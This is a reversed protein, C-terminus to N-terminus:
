HCLTFSKAGRAPSMRLSLGDLEITLKKGNAPDFPVQPAV